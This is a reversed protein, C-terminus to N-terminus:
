KKPAPGAGVMEAIGHDTKINLLDYLLGKPVLSVAQSEFCVDSPDGGVRVARYFRAKSTTREVDMLFGTIKVKLGAEEYTEKCATAQLSLGKEIGGKPFSAKYGGYANTPHIVWVRGDKEEVVVGAAVSKGPSVHFAPEALDHNVGDCYEWGEATVPADRWRRIPVGNLERPVDGGPVFTAVADPNDWTSEASPHHPAKVLVKEGKDGLKPHHHPPLPQSGGREYPKVYHQGRMHGKVHAKTLDDSVPTRPFEHGLECRSNGNIRRETM